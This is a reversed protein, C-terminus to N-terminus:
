RYVAGCGRPSRTESAGQSNSHGTGPKLAPNRQGRSPYRCQGIQTGARCCRRNCQTAFEYIVGVVGLQVRQKSVRLGNPMVMDEIIEGIPDPLSATNRLESAIGELRAPNLTLRDILAPTLGAKEGDAVDQSNAALIPDAQTLIEDALSLLM